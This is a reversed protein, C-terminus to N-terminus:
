VGVWVNSGHAGTIQLLAIMSVCFYSRPLLFQDSVKPKLKKNHHDTQMTRFFQGVKDVSVPSTKLWGEVMVVLRYNTSEHTDQLKM